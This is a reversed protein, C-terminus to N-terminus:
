ITNPILTGSSMISSDREPTGVVRSRHGALVIDYQATTLKQELHHSNRTSFQGIGKLKSHVAISDHDGIFIELLRQTVRVRVCQGIFRYHVSYFVRNRTEAFFQRNTYDIEVRWPGNAFYKWSRM